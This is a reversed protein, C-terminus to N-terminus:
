ECFHRQCRIKTLSKASPRTRIGKTVPRQAPDHPVTSLEHTWGITVALSEVYVPTYIVEHASVEHQVIIFYIYITKYFTKHKGYNAHIILFFILDNKEGKISTQPLNSNLLLFFTAEVKNDM